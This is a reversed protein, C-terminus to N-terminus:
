KKVESSTTSVVFNTFNSDNEQMSFHSFVKGSLVTSSEFLALWTPVAEPTRAMGSFMMENRDIVVKQLSINASHMNSLDNMAQAFGAVYTTNPNTLEKHLAEKNAMLLKITALKKVLQYAPKNQRVKEELAALQSDQIAKTKKQIALEASSKSLQYQSIVVALLMISAIMGWGLMVRKLTLLAQKPFLEAQLLNISNKSSM